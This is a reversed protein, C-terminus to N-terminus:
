RLPSAYLIEPLLLDSFIHNIICWGEMWGKATWEERLLTDEHVLSTPASKSLLLTRLQQQPFLFSILEAWRASGSRNDQFKNFLEALKREGCGMQMQRCAGQFEEYSLRGDKDADASSLSRELQQVFPEDSERISANAYAKVLIARRLKEDSPLSAGAGM